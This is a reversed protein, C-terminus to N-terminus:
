KREKRLNLKLVVYEFVVLLLIKIVPKYVDSIISNNCSLSCDIEYKQIMLLTIVIFFQFNSVPMAVAQFLIKM